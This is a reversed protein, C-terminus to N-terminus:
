QEFDTTDDDVLKLGYVGTWKQLNELWEQSRKRPFREAEEKDKASVRSAYCVGHLRHVFWRGDATAIRVGSNITSM